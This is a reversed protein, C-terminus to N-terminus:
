FSNIQISNYVTAYVMHLYVILVLCYVKRVAICTWPCTIVDCLIQPTYNSTGIRSVQKQCQGWKIAMYRGLEMLTDKLLVNHKSLLCNCTIPNRQNGCIRKVALPFHIKDSLVNLASFFPRCKVSFDIYWTDFTQVLVMLVTIHRVTMYFPQPWESNYWSCISM